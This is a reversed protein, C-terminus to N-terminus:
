EGPALTSEFPIPSAVADPLLRPHPVSGGLSKHTRKLHCKIKGHPERNSSKIKTGVIKTDVIKIDVDGSRFM